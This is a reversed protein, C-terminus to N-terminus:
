QGQGETEIMRFCSELFDMLKVILPRELQPFDYEAPVCITEVSKGAKRRSQKLWPYEPNPRQSLGEPALNEVRAGIDMLGHVYSRFQARRSINCYEKLGPTRDAVKLFAVFTSHVTRPQDKGNTLFGKALKETTMQLYHLRHCLPVDASSNLKNLLDFDARAQAFFASKWSHEM